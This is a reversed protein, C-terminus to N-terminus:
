IVMGNKSVIVVNFKVIDCINLFCFFIINKKIIIFNGSNKRDFM